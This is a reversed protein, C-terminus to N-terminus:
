LMSKVLDREEKLEGLSADIKGRSFDNIPLGKVVEWNGSAGTRIPFSTILGADADYEGRSCVAVSFFDGETTPNTLSRVTDVVANAASAASSQFQFPYPEM